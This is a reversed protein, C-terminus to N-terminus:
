MKKKLKKVKEKKKFANSKKYNSTKKILTNKESSFQRKKQKINMDNKEKNKKVNDNNKNKSNKPLYNIEIDNSKNQKMFPLNQKRSTNKNNISRRIKIKNTLKNKNSYSNSTSIYLENMLNKEIKFQQTLSVNLKKSLLKKSDSIFHRNEKEKEKIKENDVVYVNNIENGKMIKIKNDNLLSKKSIDSVAKEEKIEAKIQQIPENSNKFSNLKSIHKIKNKNRLPEKKMSYRVEPIKDLNEGNLINNYISEYNKNSPHKEDQESTKKHFKFHLIKSKM